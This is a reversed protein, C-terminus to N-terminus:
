VESSVHLRVEDLLQQLSFTQKTIVQVDNAQLDKREEGTLEKSTLVVVDINANNGSSRYEKLFEMGSMVPMLLDLFILRPTHTKLIDLAQRGNDAQLVNWGDDRLSRALLGRTGVDDDVLLITEQEGVLGADSGLCKALVARLDDRNPPKVLFDVVGHKMGKSREDVNSLILVPTASIEPDERIKSLVNWGDMEEMLIDLVILQPKLALAKKLGEEGNLASEVIIQDTDGIQRRIMEAVNKDDDIVLVPRGASVSSLAVGVPEARGGAENGDRPVEVTFTTGVNIESVFNVDGGMMRCFHRCIVLGLGTGGYKSSISKDAQVFASFLRSSQEPTMGIGTDRVQFRMWERGDKSFSDAHLFIKGDHTFKAANSLLNFLTQRLKVGDTVMFGLGQQPELVLTNHNKLMLPQVINVTDSLLKGISVTELFLEMKGAEIKSIDLVSNILSLLHRGAGHIKDLDAALSENGDDQADELLMESYGIIANLPTRLEHSMQALFDSKAKNAQEAAEKEATRREGELSERVVASTLDLNELTLAAQSGVTQLLSLETRTYPEESVKQTLVILGMLRNKRPFPVLIEAHVCKLFNLDEEPLGYVWSNRDDFYIVTPAQTELLSSEIASALPLYRGDSAHEPESLWLEYAQQSRIYVSARVPHLFSKVVHDLKTVLDGANAFSASALADVVNEGGLDDRFFSRRIPDTFSLALAIELGLAIAAVILIFRLSVPETPRDAVRFLLVSFAVLLVALQIITVGKRSSLNLLSQRFLVPLSMARRVVIVYAMACPLLDFCLVCPFLGWLPVVTFPDRHQILGLLILTFLPGCSILMGAWLIMLRRRKDPQLSEKIRIGLLLFFLVVAILTLSSQWEQVRVAVRLLGHLAYLRVDGLIKFTRAASTVVLFPGLFLWKGWPFRRDYWARTPFYSGFLLLFIGFVSGAIGRYELLWAPLYGEIGPRILLQSFSMMLGYLIWAQPEDPRSFVVVFGVLIALLPGLIFVVAAFSVNSLSFPTDSISTLRIVYYGPKGSSDIANVYLQQGPKSGAILVQLQHIGTVKNGDLATVTFGPKIGAQEAEDEVRVVQSGANYAFPVTAHDAPFAYWRILQYTYFGQCLVILVGFLLFITNRVPNTQSMWRM